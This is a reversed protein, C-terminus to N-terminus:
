EPTFRLGGPKRLKVFAKAAKREYNVSHLLLLLLLLLLMVVFSLQSVLNYSSLGEEWGM